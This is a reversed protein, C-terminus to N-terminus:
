IHSNHKDGGGALGRRFEISYQNLKSKFKELNSIGIIKNFLIILAYNCSGKINFNTM